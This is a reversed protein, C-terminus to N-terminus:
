DAHGRRGRVFFVAGTAVALAGVVGAAVCVIVWPAGDDNNETGAPTGTSTAVITPTTTRASTATPSATEEETASPSPTVVPEPSVAPTPSEAPPPTATAPTPSPAPTAEPCPSDVSITANIIPGAFFGGADAPPIPNLSPDQLLPGVDVTGNGDDDIRAIEAPSVGSAAAQLTLRALVGSGDEPAHPIALDAATLRYLGAGDPLPESADFVDSSPNNALFMKVDRDTITVVSPDYRFLVEWASLGVVDEVFIDVQFTDGRKVSVCSDIPGLSDATNGTPDVDLGISLTNQASGVKAALIFAMCAAFALLGALLLRRQLSATADM